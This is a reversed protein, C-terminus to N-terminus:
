YGSRISKDQDADLYWDMMVLDDCTAICFALIAHSLIIAIIFGLIISCCVAKGLSTESNRCRKM